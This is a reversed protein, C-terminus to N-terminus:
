RQSSRYGRYTRESIAIMLVSRASNSPDAMASQRNNGRRGRHAPTRRVAESTNNSRARPLGNPPRGTRRKSNSMATNTHTVRLFMKSFLRVSYQPYWTKVTSTHMAMIMDFTFTCQPVANSPKTGDSERNLDPAKYVHLCCLIRRKM